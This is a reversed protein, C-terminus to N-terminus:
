SCKLKLFDSLHWKKPNKNKRKWVHLSFCSQGVAPHSAATQNRQPGHNNLLTVLDRLAVRVLDPAPGPGAGTTQSRARGAAPTPSRHRRGERSPLSVQQGRHLAAQAPRRADLGRVRHGRALSRAARHRARGARGAERPGRGGPGRGGVERPPPQAAGRDPPPPLRGPNIDLDIGNRPAERPEEGDELPM